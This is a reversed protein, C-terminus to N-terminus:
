HSFSFAVVNVLWLLYALVYFLIDQRTTRLM